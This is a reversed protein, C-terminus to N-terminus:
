FKSAFLFAVCRSLTDTQQLGREVEWGLGCGILVNYDAPEMDPHQRLLVKEVIATKDSHILCTKNNNKKYM